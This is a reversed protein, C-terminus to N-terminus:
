NANERPGTPTPPEPGSCTSPWLASRVGLAFGLTLLGAIIFNAIQTWGITGGLQLSSVPHRLPDYDARTAGEVLFAAVFLPGAVVGCPLLITTRERSRTAPAYAYAYAYARPENV